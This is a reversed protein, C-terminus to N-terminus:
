DTRHASGSVHGASHDSHWQRRGLAMGCQRRNRSYPGRATLPIVQPPRCANTATQAHATIGYETLAGVSLAAALYGATHKLTIM